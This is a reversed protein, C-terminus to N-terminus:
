SEEPRMRASYRTRIRPSGEREPQNYCLIHRATREAAQMYLQGRLVAEKREDEGCQGKAREGKGRKGQSNPM